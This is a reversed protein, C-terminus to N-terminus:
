TTEALSAHIVRAVTGPRDWQPWHSADDVFHIKARRFLSAIHRGLDPSLYEDV